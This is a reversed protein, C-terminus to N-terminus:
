LKGLREHWDRVGREILELAQTFASRPARYPDPVEFGGWRGLSHIKGRARPFRGSLDERQAEDMVLILDHDQVMSEDIQRARHASIDIGAERMLEDAIPDAPRGVLAGLGASAVSINLDVVARRLLAEAMPSRCINGICVVLVSRIM